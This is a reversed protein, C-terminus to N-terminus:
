KRTVFLDKRKWIPWYPSTEEKLRESAIFFHLVPHYGMMTAWSRISRLVRIARRVSSVPLEKVQRVGFFSILRLIASFLFIYKLDSQFHFPLVQHFYHLVTSVLGGSIAGLGAALGNATNWAAFYVSNGERPSMRLVLNVSCLNYGAWSFGGIFHLLPIFLFIVLPSSDTFIWLFPLLTAVFSNIIIVARNGLQDSFHGWAWMGMLDSAASIVTYISVLTYSLQLDKLMYVIFFPSAFNVGFSWIVAFRLLQRFNKDRWPALFREKLHNEPPPSTRIEPQKVLFTISIFALIIALLFLIEFSRTPPLHPFQIKFWDLYYGGLITSLLTFLSLASNRLGFYRGRIEDPVLMSMWSLWAVGSIHAFIHYAIVLLILISLVLTPRHAALLFSSLVIPIWLLRAMGAALLVLKKRQQHKEIVYAGPLQSLTAFFPISALLGIQFPNAGLVLAFSPLFISGTLIAFSQAFVGDYISIRLAKLITSIHSNNVSM